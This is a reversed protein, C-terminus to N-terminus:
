TERKWVVRGEVITAAPAGVLDWGEESDLVGAVRTEPEMRAFLEFSPPM